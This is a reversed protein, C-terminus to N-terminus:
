EKTKPHPPDDIIKELQRILKLAASIDKPLQAKRARLDAVALKTLALKSVLEARLEDCMQM